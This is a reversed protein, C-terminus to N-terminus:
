YPRTPESIHILSLDGATEECLSCDTNIQTVSGDPELIGFVLTAEAKCDTDSLFAFNPDFAKKDLNQPKRLGESEVEAFEYEGAGVYSAPQIYTDTVGPARSQRGGLHLQYTYGYKKDKVKSPYVITDENVNPAFATATDYIRAKAASFNIIAQCRGGQNNYTINDDTLNIGFTYLFSAQTACASDTTRELHVTYFLYQGAQLSNRLTGDRFIQQATEGGRLHVYPNSKFTTTESVYNYISGCLNLNAVDAYKFTM